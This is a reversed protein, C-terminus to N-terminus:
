RLEGSGLGSLRELLWQSAVRRHCPTEGREFCLLTFDGLAPLGDVWAQFQQIQQYAVDLGKRYELSLAAFDLDGGRYARLLERAPYM